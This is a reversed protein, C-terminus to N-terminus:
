SAEAFIRMIDLALRVCRNGATSSDSSIMVWRGVVSLVGRRKAGGEHMQAGSREAGSCSPPVRSVGQYDLGGRERERERELCHNVRSFYAGPPLNHRKSERPFDKMIYTGFVVGNM